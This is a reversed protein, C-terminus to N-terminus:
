AAAKTALQNHYQREFEVPSVYNISSHIRRRNYFAEIYDFSQEKAVAYSEFREGLESKFTSFWSEMAANDLCNGRRSMSCTIGEAELAHRYDESAYPSGQDSHHLLGTNPCRRRVAMDLAKLALHRDNVASLAWGVVLRSFLDLVAALYLKGSDGILLETTDSVWRQNPQEADFRRALINPAIPQDHDSMTTCKYRRRVRAKLGEQQMLRIIRKRGVREGSAALDKQVRPSGYTKRSREHSERVLVALRRDDRVHKAEPRSRSAYYGARSLGLARCWMSVPENAKEAHILAFKM